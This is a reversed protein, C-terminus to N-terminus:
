KRAEWCDNIKEGTHYEFEKNVKFYKNLRKCAEKCAELDACNKCSKKIVKKNQM